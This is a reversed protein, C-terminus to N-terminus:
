SKLVFRTNRDKEKFIREMEQETLEKLEPEWVDEHQLARFPRSPVPPAQTADHFSNRALCVQERIAHAIVPVFEGGVGLESAFQRAFDEPSVSFTSYLPWEFQDRLHVAAVHIDLKIVIRIDEDYEEDQHAGERITGDGPQDEDSAAAYSAVQQRIANAVLPAFQGAYPSDFDEALMAGFQEPTLLTENLNWTFADRLKVGEVELDLRIPILRVPTAAIHQLERKSHYIHKTGKSRTRKNSNYKFDGLDRVAKAKPPLHEDDELDVYESDVYASRSYLDTSM